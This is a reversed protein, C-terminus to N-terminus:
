NVLLSLYKEPIQNWDTIKSLEDRGTLKIKFRRECDITITDKLRLSRGLKFLWYLEDTKSEAGSQSRPINRRKIKSRELIPYIYKIQRRNNPTDLAVALYRAETVIHHEINQREFAWSKTHYYGAEGSEFKAIYEPDRSPGLQNAVIVLDTYWAVQTGLYPIRPPEEVYYRETISGEHSASKVQLKSELFSTLWLSGSCDESPLLSFAGIGVEEIEDAYPNGKLEQNFFGPYLAYAGFVPRAKTTVNLLNNKNIHILADRYRHMQNIADEPVHDVEEGDFEKSEIRYKADFLWVIKEQSPFIAELFIDPRQTGTWSKIPNSSKGFKPEHALKIKIGQREFHFAGQLGDEFSVEVGKNVLPIREAGKESFGLSLLIRRIELFCWVEYLESVSRLSLNNTGELVDLYMKLQQWAKYIKAYGPKQQLVLSERSFGSFQEVEKFFPQRQFYRIDNQWLELKEFFSKSLRQKEPRKNSALSATRIKSLKSVIVSIVSKIFRNEPTDVSLIKKDLSFRKEYNKDAIARAIGEELKPSLKGKLRDMKVVKKTSVLRSHPANVIHKLGIHLDGFLKEFQAFWLLLFDPHPKKTSQMQQQTREALAYRWLPFERDIASNIVDLDSAMDMKTPLIEFSLSYRSKQGNVEYVLEIKFWGIDNGTHVTARLSNTRLSYHFSDEIARLRHEIVPPKECFYHKLEKRFAFEIDYQKNEFFLPEPFSLENIMRGNEKECIAPSILIKTNPLQKNKNFLTRELRKRSASVDKSWIIFDFDIDHINSDLAVLEM